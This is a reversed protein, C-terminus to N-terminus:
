NNVSNYTCNYQHELLRWNLHAKTAFTVHALWEFNYKLQIKIEYGISM